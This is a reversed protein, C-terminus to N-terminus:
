PIVLPSPCAIQLRWLGHSFHSYWACTQYTHPSLSAPSCIKSGSGGHTHEHCASSTTCPMPKSILHLHFLPSPPPTLASFAISSITPPRTIPSTQRLTPLITRLLPLLLLQKKPFDGFREIPALSHTVLENHTANVEDLSARLKWKDEFMASPLSSLAAMEDDANQQSETSETLLQANLDIYTQAVAKAQGARIKKVRFCQAKNQMLKSIYVPLNSCGPTIVYYFHHSPIFFTM